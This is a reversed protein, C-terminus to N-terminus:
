ASRVRPDLAAHLVDAVFGALLVMVAAFLSYAVVSNVDNRSISDVLWEGMGHWGFIKETFTAGTLLGLFGYAFFTSMPILATRLGHKLIARNRRLGKARATRLYDSGLVDLMTNRQYRSYSAIAMAAIVLTPLMLHGARDLLMTFFGGELGPTFEGTFKIDSGTSENISVMANKIFLALVLTPTSMILFAFITMARDSFRYQRMAAWAGCLIGVVTGLITGALLLRLSVGIRNGFEQNVPTGELTRGLDGQVANAAWDGFREPLPTKDNIGLETLQAEVAAAPPKPNRGEFSTRPSLASAALAYSLGIAVLLLVIYYGLRKTLFGLM